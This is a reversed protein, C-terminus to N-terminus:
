GALNALHVKLWYLGNEGLAKPEAFVLLARCLDSGVISLHPPVPYARGRFDVNYPFFIEEMDRFKQAQNLKLMASCRLSHLDANKQKFRKHKNLADRYKKFVEIHGKKEVDGLRHYDVYALEEPYPPVEYNTRSPIDGLVVGDEWCKQAVDLVTQNIRWPISGLVNLGEMATSLDARYLADKQTKCHRTRMFPVRITEYGGTNVDTWENPPVVMPQVRSNSLSPSLYATTSTFEENVAINMLDRNIMIYGHRTNESTKVRNYRFAPQPPEYGKKLPKSFTTHDLLLRILAAGLKVRKVPDWEAFDNMSLKEKMADADNALSDQESVFGEALLIEKCKRKVKTASVKGRGKLDGLGKGSVEDLFRQLHSATYIWNEINPKGGGGGLSNNNSNNTMTDDGVTVNTTPDDDSEVVNSGEGDGFVNVKMRQDERKRQEKARIRLARSVNVETELAEAVHMAMQVVKTGYDKKNNAIGYSLATHALLVAIKRPPLLCLLPGYITRDKASTRKSRAFGDEKYEESDPDMYYDHHMLDKTLTDNDGNLFLWQELEIAETLPTYWSDLARRVMPITAHDSRQRAANWIDLVKLMSEETSETELQLQLKALDKYKSNKHDKDDITKTTEDLLNYLSGESTTAAAAAEQQQQHEHTQNGNNLLDILSGEQNNLQHLPPQSHDMEYNGNNYSPQAFSTSSQHHGGGGGGNHYDINDTHLLDLLSSGAGGGGGGAQSSSTNRPEENHLLDLLSGGEQGDGKTDTKRARYRQLPTLEATATPSSQQHSYNHTDNDYSSSSSFNNNNEMLSKSTSHKLWQLDSADDGTDLDDNEIDDYYSPKTSM